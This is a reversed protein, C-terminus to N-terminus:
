GRRGGQRLAVAFAAMIVAANVEAPGLRVTVPGAAARMRTLVADDLASQAAPRFHGCDCLTCAGGIDNHALTGHGCTVCKPEPRTANLLVGWAGPTQPGAFVARDAPM